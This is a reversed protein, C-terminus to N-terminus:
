MCEFHQIADEEAGPLLHGYTDLTLQISSHRLVSQIVKPQVGAIALWAGCTHRLAHFDLVHDQADRYQLLGPELPGENGAFFRAIGLDSRLREALRAEANIDFPLKGVLRKALSATIYQKAPKGNKTHKGPLELRKGRLSAPNLHRIEESRYGTQIATEYLLSIPTKSLWAWEERLLFRRIRKRDKEPNPKKIAELPDVAIAKRVLRLWKTFSKASTLYAGQSRLSLLDGNPKRFQRVTTEVQYQTIQQVKTWDNATFIRALNNITANIHKPDDGTLYDRYETLLTALSQEQSTLGHLASSADSEWKALIKTAATKSKTGTSKQKRAGTADTFEAQWNGGQKRRYLTGM